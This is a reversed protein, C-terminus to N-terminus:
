NNLKKNVNLTTGDISNIYVMEGVKIEINSKARWLENNIKVWGVTYPTIKTIVVAKANILADVNTLLNAPIIKTCIPRICYLSIISMIVFISLAICYKFYTVVIGACLAGVSLCIFFFSSPTYIELIIFFMTLLIWFKWTM